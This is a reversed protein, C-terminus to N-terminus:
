AVGGEEAEDGLLPGGGVVGQGGHARGSGHIGDPGGGSAGPLPGTTHPPDSPSTTTVIKPKLQSKPNTVM